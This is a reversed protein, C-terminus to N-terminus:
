RPSWRSLVLKKADEKSKIVGKLEMEEVFSLIERFLPSPTFGWEILDRGRVLPERKKPLYVGEYYEFLYEFFGEARRVDEEVDVGKAKIDSIVVFYFLKLIDENKRIFREVERRSLEGREMRKAMEMPRMHYLVLREISSEEKKSFGLVESVKKVVKASEGEHGYFHIEEPKEGSKTTPKGVDHLLLAMKVIFKEEQSLERYGELDELFELAKVTHTWVDYAHYINQGCGVCRELEPILQSLVSHEMMSSIARHAGDLPIIRYLEFRVREPQLNRVLSRKGKILDSTERDINFDLLVLFRFARLIRGPDIDFSAPSVVRVLRRKIDEVGGLLDFLRFESLSCTVTNMTFDRSRLNEELNTDLLSFDFTYPPKVVSITKRRETLRLQYSKGGIKESFEKAVDFAKESLFDFDYPTRGIIADRVAGGVILMSPDLSLLLDRFPVELKVTDM